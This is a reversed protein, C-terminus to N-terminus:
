ELCSAIRRFGREEVSHPRAGIRWHPLAGLTSRGRFACLSGSTSENSGSLRRWKDVRDFSLRFLVCQGVEVVPRRGLEVDQIAIEVACGKSGTAPAEVTLLLM